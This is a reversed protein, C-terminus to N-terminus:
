FCKRLYATAIGTLLAFLISTMTGILYYEAFKRDKAEGFRVISKAAFVFAITAYQGLLVLTMVFIREIIGIVAGARKLGADTSSADSLPCLKLIARVVYHGVLVAFVYGYFYIAMTEIFPVECQPFAM